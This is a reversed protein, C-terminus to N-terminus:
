ALWRGGRMVDRGALEGYGRYAQIRSPRLRFFRWDPGEAAPDWGAADVFAARLADPAASAAASELVSAEVMVVDDPTGLALRAVGSGDLNRATPTTSRTAIVIDQGNWAQSVAILHPQGDPSATALWADGHRELVAITDAKRQPTSRLESM